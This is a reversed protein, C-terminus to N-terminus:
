LRLPRARLPLFGRSCLSGCVLPVIALTSRSAGFLAFLAAHFYAELAGIQVGSFFVVLDGGRIALARLGMNLSDADPVYKHTPFAYLIRVLAGLALLVIAPPAIRGGSRLPGENSPKPVEPRGAFGRDSGIPVSRGSAETRSAASAPRIRTTGRSLDGALHVMARGQSSSPSVKYPLKGSFPALLGDALEITATLDDSVGGALRNFKAAILHSALRDPEADGKRYAPFSLKCSAPRIPSTEELVLSSAPWLEPHKELVRSILARM